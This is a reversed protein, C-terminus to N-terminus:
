VMESPCVPVLVTAAEAVILPELSAGVAVVFVNEAVSSATWVAVVTPVATIAPL